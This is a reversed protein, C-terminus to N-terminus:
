VEAFGDICTETFIRPGLLASVVISLQGEGDQTTIIDMLASLAALIEGSEFRTQFVNSQVFLTPLSFIFESRECALVETVESTLHEIVPELEYSM